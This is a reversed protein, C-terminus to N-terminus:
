AAMDRYLFTVIQARICPDDPAFSTKSKGTTVGNKVAWLVANCYYTGANVDSFPNNVVVIESGEMRWLFTVSQARRVRDDPSFTTPSTGTTIKQEAAWLVAKYYYANEKVDTFPNKMGAPEPCGKARWLFTVMQARTCSDEPSFTTDSTGETIKNEVAWKVPEYYYSNEKIDNFPCVWEKEGLYTARFYASDNEAQNGAFVYLWGDAAAVTPKNPTHYSSTRFYPKLETASDSLLYTDVQNETCGILAIGDSCGCIEVDELYGQQFIGDASTSLNEFVVEEKAEDYTGRYLCPNEVEDGTEPDYSFKEFGYLFQSSGVLNSSPIKGKLKTVKGKGPDIMAIEASEDEMEEDDKWSAGSTPIFFLKSQFVLLDGPYDTLDIDVVAWRDTDPDYSRLTCFSYDESPVSLYLLGNWGAMKNLTNGKVEDPLDACRTWSDQDIQYRWLAIAENRINKSILYLSGDLETMNGYVFDTLDETWEPNQIPLSLDKEYLMSGEGSDSSYSFLVQMREGGKKTVMAVHSGNSLGSLDAKIIQDKWECFSHPVGDIQLSGEEGFFYGNLTLLSDETQASSILPAKKTFDTQFNLNLRGGTRCYPLLNEDDYDVAALLKATRELAMQELDDDSLAANEPEDKAIVSLAATVTPAAMSTGAMTQYSGTGANENGLAINDLYLVTNEDAAPGHPDPAALAFGAIVYTKGNNEWGYVGTLEGPDEYTGYPGYEPFLEEKERDSMAHVSNVTDLVGKVNYSLPIWQVQYTNSVATTQYGSFAGLDATHDIEVAKGEKDRYTLTAIGATARYQDNVAMKLGIWRLDELSDTPIAMYFGNQTKSEGSMFVSLEKLDKIKVSYSYHDLFGAAENKMTIEKAQDDLAPNSDFLRVESAEGAATDPGYLLSEEDSVEPFFRMYDRATIIEGSQFRNLIKRPATSLIGDGSTFLDTSNRGYNSFPSMKGNASCANVNVAYVSSIAPGTDQIEDMDSSSNGSAFVTTAGQRGLEHSLASITFSPKQNGWSCNVAKLNVEKSVNILFHFARAASSVSSASGDDGFIRVGFIKVGNAIGSTGFSNWEAGIIGAVHTGHEHHDTIDRYDGYPEEDDEDISTNLGYPGCHYKKQQEESFEYLVGQLDPHTTDIGTDMVCVTGSSNVEASENLRGEIWGPINLRYHEDSAFPTSYNQETDMLYWQMDTLDGVNFTDTNVVDSQVSNDSFSDTMETENDPVSIAYNPEASIVSPNAYLENLLEETTRRPDSFLRVSYKPTSDDLREEATEAQPMDTEKASDVAEKLADASIMSLEESQNNLDSASSKVVAIVQGEIYGGEALLEEVPIDPSATEAHVEITQPMSMICAVFISLLYSLVRIKIGRM